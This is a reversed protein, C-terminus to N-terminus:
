QHTNIRVFFVEAALWMVVVPLVIMILHLATYVFGFNNSMLLPQFLAAASNVISLMAILLMAVKAFSTHRFTLDVLIPMAVIVVLPPSLATGPGFLFDQLVTLNSQWGWFTVKMNAVICVVANIFALLSYLWTAYVFRQFLPTHLSLHHRHRLSEFM